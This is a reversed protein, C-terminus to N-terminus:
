RSSEVMTEYLREYASVIVGAGFREEADRRVRERPLSALKAVASVAETVGTVVFGSVGERVVEPVSGRAFGVVPTGCAMAEAMVIGFPEDWEITMLLAAARGLLENKQADDVPGLYRITSADLEPAVKEDFYRQDSINGAILLRRGAAKAVAIAQHTGKIPEIRGLFVLPAAAGVSAVFTYKELDVGNHITTWEGPLPEAHRAYMQTSCAAFRLSDGALTCARRIGKRPLADRQYSQLKPLSRLPLVPVLAALRGFSHVLDIRRRLQYLRAGVQWLERSRAAFGQHPPVGYRVLTAATQSDPHAFLTVEHGRELLGRVLFDVVREIGGYYRPPIPIYPDVTVAIRM